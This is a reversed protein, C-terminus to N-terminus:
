TDSLGGSSSVYGLPINIVEGLLREYVSIGVHDNGITSQYEFTIPYRDLTIDIEAKESLTGDSANEGSALSLNM